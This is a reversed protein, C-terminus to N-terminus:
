RYYIEVFLTGLWGIVQQSLLYVLFLLFIIILMGVLTFITTGVFKGFEYDHIRMIGVILMFMAYLACVTTFIGLFAAEDPVLVHTLVLNLLKSFILPITSYCTVIYIEKLTGIGSALSCVLWNAVTWLVALGITSLLVFIANYNGKDFITFAFGGKTDNIVTVVYMIVLLVTAIVISGQKKEKVLRFSEVPHAVSDLAVKLRENKFIVIGRKKLQIRVVVIVAIVIIGVLILWGFNNELMSNRQVKFAKSYIERDVGMKAYEIATENEGIDYYAKALGRYALQNNVDEKIIQAWDSKAGAFDGSLTTLQAAYVRQGYETRTFITLSNKRADTVIIDNGNQVIGSPLGFTGKQIGDGLSGGFVCLLNCEKDYWFIRGYTTDLGYFFGNKDVDISSLDQTQRQRKLSGVNVDAFNIDSGNLVDKGGPNLRCIQGTQIADDNTRGTATYVFDNPGVILDTFTYPLSIEDAARKIDNSFLRDWIQKIIELPTAKVTNAGFFGLFEMQPSYLIAGYYSGDSAIYTYGKSDVGIKVPRYKFETPILDSEPLLLLKEITGQANIVLVRANETDAVYINGKADVYIGRADTYSIAQGNYTFNQLTRLVNYNKDLIYIRSNGSDLVYLNGQTDTAIDNIKSSADAGMDLPNVVTNLEYMPKSYVATKDSTDFDEWYTYSQYPIEGSGLSSTDQQVAFTSVSFSFLLIAAIILAFLRKVSKKM